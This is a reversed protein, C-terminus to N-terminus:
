AAIKIKEAALSARNSLPQAVEGALKIMKETSKSTQAIMADFSARAFDSQLKFFETPSKVSSMSKIAATADEYQKKAFAAADQGMSEVGRVYIKSAEVMAEVNGKGFSNMEEVMKSSKEMAGKARSNVDALVTKAQDQAKDAAAKITNEMKTEKMKRAALVKAAPKRTPKTKPAARKAAAAKKAVPKRAPKTPKIKESSAPAPTAAAKPAAEPKPAAAAVTAPATAPKAIEAPPAATAPTPVSKETDEPVRMELEISRHVIVMGRSSQLAKQQLAVFADRGSGATMGAFAPIWVRLPKRDFPANAM